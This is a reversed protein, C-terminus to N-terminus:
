SLSQYHKGYNNELKRSTLNEFDSRIMEDFTYFDTYGRSSFYERTNELSKDSCILAFDGGWAGLSKIAGWFDHFDGDQIRDIGLSSSVLNEHEFVLESFENFDICEVMADTLANIKGILEAKNEISISKYFKIADNTKKKKNLYLFYLNEKFVPNFTISSWSPSDQKNQYIIPGAAQACAIDYGSGGFAKAQLEFPSVYAWQSINYLLTSSSGLGWNLPFEVHTEVLVDNEDRLFHINQTRALRLINQLVRADESDNELINFHWLEYKVEFWLKNVSDFSKWHLTPTRSPRTQVRMTQGLNTPLALARAGDIVFYEGSVLVKGHGYYFSTSM